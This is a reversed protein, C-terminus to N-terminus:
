GGRRKMGWPATERTRNWAVITFTRDIVYLGLPLSDLIKQTLARERVLPQETLFFLAGGNWATAQLHLGGDALVLEATDQKQGLKEVLSRVQSRLLPPFAVTVGKGPSHRRPLGLLTWWAPNATVIKGARDSVLVGVNDLRSLLTSLLRNRGPDDARGRRHSRPKVKRGTGKVVPRGM